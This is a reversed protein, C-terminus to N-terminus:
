WSQRRIWHEALQRAQAPPLESHPRYSANVLQQWPQDPDGSTRALFRVWQDGSLGAPQEAPHRALAAEKLLRNLGAYWDPGPHDPVSYRYLRALAARKPAHRRYRRWGVVIAVIVTVMVLAALVWWGQALPWFGAPPPPQIDRLQELVEEPM